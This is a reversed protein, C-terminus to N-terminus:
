LLSTTNRGGQRQSLVIFLYAAVGMGLAFTALAVALHGRCRRVFHGWIFKKSGDVLFDEEPPAPSAGSSCCLVVVSM